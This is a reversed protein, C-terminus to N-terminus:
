CIFTVMLNSFISEADKDHENLKCMSNKKKKPLIKAFLCHMVEGYLNKLFIDVSKLLLFM